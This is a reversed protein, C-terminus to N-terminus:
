EVHLHGNSLELKRSNGIVRSDGQSHNLGGVSQLGICIPLYHSLERELLAAFRLVPIRNFIETGNRRSFGENRDIKSAELGSCGENRGLGTTGKMDQGLFFLAGPVLGLLI